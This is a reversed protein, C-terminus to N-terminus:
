WLAGDQTLAADLIERVDEGSFWAPWEGYKAWNDLNILTNERLWAAREKDTRRTM